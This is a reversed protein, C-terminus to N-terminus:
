DGKSWNKGNVALEYGFNNSSNISVKGAADIRMGRFDQATSPNYWPAIVFGSSANYDFPTSVHLPSTADNIGIGTYGNDNITFIPTIIIPSLNPIGPNYNEIRFYNQSVYGAPPPNTTVAPINRRILFHNTSNTNATPISISVPSLTATTVSNSPIWYQAEMETGLMLSITLLILIKKLSLKKRSNVIM